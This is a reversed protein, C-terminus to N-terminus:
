SEQTGEETSPLEKEETLPLNRLSDLEKKLQKIEKNKARVERAKALWGKFTYAVGFLTGLIFALTVLLYFPMSVTFREVYLDLNLQVVQSMTQFNQIMFVVMVVLVVAWFIAKIWRM